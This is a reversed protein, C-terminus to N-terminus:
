VRLSVLRRGREREVDAKSRMGIGKNLKRGKGGLGDGMALPSHGGQLMRLVAQMVVIPNRSGWIKASIDKIGAAKLVQHLVPACRLGFGVPRPRLVLKTAGFKTEMDTWITRQEFRDIYDMNKLAKILAKDYARQGNEDKGMGLGVTGNGDGVVMFVQMQSIKGKETQQTTWRRVLPFVFLKSIDYGNRFGALENLTLEDETLDTKAPKWKEDFKFGDLEMAEHFMSYHNRVVVKNHFPNEEDPPFEQVDRSDMLPDPTM